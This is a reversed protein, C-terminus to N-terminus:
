KLHNQVTVMKSHKEELYKWEQYLSKFKTSTENSYRLKELLRFVVMSKALGRVNRCNGMSAKRKRLEHLTLLGLVFSTSPQPHCLDTQKSSQHKGVKRVIEM